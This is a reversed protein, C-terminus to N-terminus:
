KEDAMIRNVFTSTQKTKPEIFEGQTCKGVINVLKFVNDTHKVDMISTSTTQNQPLIKIVEADETVEKPLLVPQGVVSFM